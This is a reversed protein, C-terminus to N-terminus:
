AIFMGFLPMLLLRLHGFVRFYWEVVKNQWIRRASSLRLVECHKSDLRPSEFLELLVIPFAGYAEYRARTEQGTSEEYM